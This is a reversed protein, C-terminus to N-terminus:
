STVETWTSTLLETLKKQTEGEFLVSTLERAKSYVLVPNPANLRDTLFKEKDSRIEALREM